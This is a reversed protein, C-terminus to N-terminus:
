GFMKKVMNIGANILKDPNPLPSAKPIDEPQQYQPQPIQSDDVACEETGSDKNSVFLAGQGKVEKEWAKKATSNWSENDIKTNETVSQLTLQGNQEIANGIIKEDSSVKINAVAHVDLPIGGSSYANTVRIDIPLTILIMREVRHIIPVCLARSGGILTKYGVTKGSSTTNSGGSFVLVENPRGIILIRKIIGIGVMVAVALIVFFSIAEM